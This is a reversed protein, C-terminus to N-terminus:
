KVTKGAKHNKIGEKLFEVFHDVNLDYAHPQVLLNGDGELLVYYPQANVNFREIQLDAFKAGITKKVKNDYKSTIWESEPLKTKDDVYLAVVIYEERLIKLVKPDSWVNAEMERCNVCAHGTFDVFIPKDQETACALAQEYDFYGELGHPLHLFEHYKPAECIENNTAAGGGGSNDRIIKTMNFDLTHMPPMYGSLAKLPAGWMGPIMYIVFSFTIIALFLRPVSVFPTDSDHAFKIKGLLYIGM